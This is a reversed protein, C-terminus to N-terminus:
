MINITRMSRIASAAVLRVLCRVQRIGTARIGSEKLAYM